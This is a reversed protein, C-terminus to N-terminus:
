KGQVMIQETLSGDVTTIQVLYSGAPFQGTNVMLANSGTNLQFPQRLVIQGLPGIIELTCHGPRSTEFEAKFYGKAPNPSIKLNALSVSEIKASRIPSFQETGNLDLMRLRYYYFTNPLIEEDLYTYIGGGKGGIWAIKSFDKGNTSRQLEYGSFSIENQSEWHALINKEFPKVDFVLLELPLPQSPIGNNNYNNPTDYPQNNNAAVIKFQQNNMLSPNLSIGALETDDLIPLTIRMLNMASVPVETHFLPSPNFGMFNGEWTIALISSSNNVVNIINYKDAGSFQENLLALKEVLANTAINEGFAATNYNLYVQGRIHYSGASSMHMQVDFQFNTGNLQPNALTFTPTQSQIFQGILLFIFISAINKM